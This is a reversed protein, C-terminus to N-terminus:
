RLMEWITISAAVSANLSEARGAMPITVLEDSLAKIEDSVGNAENGIVCVAGGSFDVATIKKASGDPVTAFVRGGRGQIYKLCDALNETVVPNVRLMSGMSARLAKPNYIDCGGGVIIGDLGLADATRVVAGLNGPDQVNDLAIYKCKADLKEELSKQMKCVAFVGQSSQTDSLRNAIEDTIIYSRESIEILRDANNKYKEYADPTILFHSVKYFSNLVDFVLRAGELVFANDNRRQKSSSLLRKVDKILDNNKGTIKEM